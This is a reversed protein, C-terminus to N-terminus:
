SRPREDHSRYPCIPPRLTRRATPPPCSTPGTPARHADGARFPLGCWAVDPAGPAFRREVLDPLPPAGEAPITTRVKRRPTVGVIDNARMLREIRKHNVCHGRRRIEKTVRPGGYTSDSETHIDKIHNVLYAEDLDSISPGASERALWDYYASTSVEAAECAASIPFGEAKMASVHRYRSM